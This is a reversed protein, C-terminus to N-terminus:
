RNAPRLKRVAFIGAAAMLLGAILWNASPTATEPMKAGKVTSVAPGAKAPNNKADAVTQATEKIDQGTEAILDSGIMEATLLLDLILRNEKDYLEVLLDSGDVDELNMMMELALEKQIGDKVLYYKAQLELLDMMEGYISIMERLQDETIEDVSEFEGIALMRDALEVLEIDLNPNNEYLKEFHAGLREDEEETLSLENFAEEFGTEFEPMSNYIAEDLEEISAYDEIRIDQEILYDDFEKRSEFWYSEWLEQLSEDNIEVPFEGAIYLSDILLNEFLFTDTITEEEFLDGNEVLLNTAKEITLGMEALIDSLSKQVDIRAGLYSELEEANEFDSLSLGEYDELYLELGEQSLEVRELYAQFRESGADVKDAAMATHAAFLQLLVFCAAFYKKM